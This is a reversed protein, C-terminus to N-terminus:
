RLAVELWKQQTQLVWQPDDLPLDHGAWPHVALPVGWARALARSCAPSVLRDGAGVMLLLPVPPRALAARFRAAAWLQRLANATTVPASRYIASWDAVAAPHLAPRASTMRLVTAERAEIDGGAWVGLLSTALDDDTKLYGRADLELKSTQGLIPNANTGIAYVVMDTAIEFESGAVPVPKRRGSADPEGLEMAQCRMARVNSGADGLLELPSTLWHFEIGEEIAHHIEEVRAPAEAGIEAVPELDHADRDHRQAVARVVDGHESPREPGFGGRAGARPRRQMGGGQGRERAIM